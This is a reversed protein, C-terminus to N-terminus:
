RSNRFDVLVKRLEDALLGGAFTPSNLNVEQLTNEVNQSIVGNTVVGKKNKASIQRLLKATISAKVDIPDPIKAGTLTTTFDGANMNHEIGTVFYLGSTLANLTQTVVGTDDDVTPYYSFLEFCGPGLRLLNPDGLVQIKATTPYRLFHSLRSKIKMSATTAAGSEYGNAASDANQRSKDKGELNDPDFVNLNATGLAVSNKLRYKNRAAVMAARGLTKAKNVLGVGKAQMADIQGKIQHSDVKTTDKKTAVGANNLSQTVKEALTLRGGEVAYALQSGDSSQAFLPILTNHAATLALVEGFLKSSTGSNGLSAQFINQGSGYFYPLKSAGPGYQIPMDRLVVEFDDLIDPLLFFAGDEYELPDPATVNDKKAQDIEDKLAEAAYFASGTTNWDAPVNQVWVLKCRTALLASSRALETELFKGITEKTYIGNFTGYISEKLALSEEANNKDVGGMQAVVAQEIIKAVDDNAIVDTKSSRINKIDKLLQNVRSSNASNKTETQAVSSNTHPFWQCRCKGALDNLVTEFNRNNIAISSSKKTLFFTQEQAGETLKFKELESLNSSIVFDTGIKNYKSTYLLDDLTFLRIRLYGELIARIQQQPYNAELVLDGSSNQLVMTGVEQLSFTFTTGAAGPDTMAVNTILFQMWPSTASTINVQRGLPDTKANSDSFAWGFKMKLTPFGDMSKAKQDATDWVNLWSLIDEPNKTFLILSGTVTKEIGGMPMTLDFSQFNLRTQQSSGTKRNKSKPYIEVGNLLIQVVPTRVNYDPLYHAKKSIAYGTVGAQTAASGVSATEIIKAAEPDILTRMINVVADITNQRKEIDSGEGLNKLLSPSNKDGVILTKVIDLSTPNYTIGM